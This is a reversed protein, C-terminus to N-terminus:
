STMFDALAKRRAKADDIKSITELQAKQADTQAKTAARVKISDEFAKDAIAQIVAPAEPLGSSKGEEGKKQLLGRIVLLLVGFGIAVAAWFWYKAHKWWDGM